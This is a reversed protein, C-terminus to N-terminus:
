ENTRKRSEALYALRKLISLLNSLVTQTEYYNLGYVYLLGEPECHKRLTAAIEDFQRARDILNRGWERVENPSMNDFDPLNM